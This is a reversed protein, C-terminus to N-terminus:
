FQLALRGSDNQHLFGCFVSDLWVGRAYPVQFPL